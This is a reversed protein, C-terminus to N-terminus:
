NIVYYGEMTLKQELLHTLDDRVDIYWSDSTAGNLVVPYGIKTFTLRGTVWAAGSGWQANTIDYMLAALDGHSKVADALGQITTGNEVKYPTFGNTLPTGGNNGWGGSDFSGVDLLYFIIRTIYYTRDSPPAISFRQPTVSGNVAMNFSGTITGTDSLPHVILPHMEGGNTPVGDVDVLTTASWFKDNANYIKPAKM